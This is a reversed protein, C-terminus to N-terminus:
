SRSTPLVQITTSLSSAKGCGCGRCELAKPIEAYRWVSINNYAHGAESISAEVGYLGNNLVMVQFSAAPTGWGISCWLTQSEMAVGPPFQHANLMLMCTGPESALPVGQSRLKVPWHCCLRLSFLANMGGTLM